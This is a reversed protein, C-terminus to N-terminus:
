EPDGFFSGLVRRDRKTPRGAGKPRHGAGLERERPKAFEEAPTLDQIYQPVLKAGVRKSLPALVKVTRRVGAVSAVVVDGCRVSRAPKAPQGNVLVGGGTCAEIALTRTKFLRVSWLWKDLRAETEPTMRLLLLRPRATNAGQRRVATRLDAERDARDAVVEAVAEAGVGALAAIRVVIPVVTQAAVIRAASPDVATAATAATAVVNTAM